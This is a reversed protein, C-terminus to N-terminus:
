VTSGPKSVAIESWGVDMLSTKRLGEIAVMQTQVESSFDQHAWIFAKM